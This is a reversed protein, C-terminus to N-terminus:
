GHNDVASREYGLIYVIRRRTKGDMSWASAPETGVIVAGDPLKFVEGEVVTLTM